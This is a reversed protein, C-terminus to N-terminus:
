EGRHVAMGQSRSNFPMPRNPLDSFMGLLEQVNAAAIADRIRNRSRRLELLTAEFEALKQLPADTTTGADIHQKLIERQRTVCREVASVRRDVQALDLETYTMFGGVSHKATCNWKPARSGMTVCNTLPAATSFVSLTSMLGTSMLGRFDDRCGGCSTLNRFDAVSLDLTWTTAEIATGDPVVSVAHTAADACSAQWHRRRGASTRRNKNGGPRELLRLIEVFLPRYTRQHTVDSRCHDNTCLLLPHVPWLMSGLQDLDLALLQEQQMTLAQEVYREPLAM